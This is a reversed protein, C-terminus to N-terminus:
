SRLVFPRHLSLPRPLTPLLSSVALTYEGESWTEETESSKNTPPFFVQLFEEKGEGNDVEFKKETKKKKFRSEGWPRHIVRM